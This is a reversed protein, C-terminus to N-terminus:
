QIRRIKYYALMLLKIALISFIGCMICLPLWFMLVNETERMYYVLDINPGQPLYEASDFGARVLNIGGLVLLAAFSATAARNVIPDKYPQVYVHQLLILFSVFVMSILRILSNNIFTYLLVLILRRFMQVGAWCVPGIARTTIDRFPGQLVNIVCETESPINTNEDKRRGREAMWQNMIKLILWHIVFPLPFICSLFFTRLSVKNQELLSPGMLLVFSFPVISCAAYAVVYYQWQSYCEVSGDVFLINTDGIPVCNLLTFSTTALMQYLFLLALMFANSLRTIFSGDVKSSCCCRTIKYVIYMVAFLFVIYPALVAKSILKQWPSLGQLLCVHDILHAIELRFKFLGLLVKKMLARVRPEPTQNAIKVDFLVADQFYYLVIILLIAGIDTLPPPPPQHSPSLPPQDEEAVVEKETSPNTFGESLERPKQEYPNRLVESKKLTTMYMVGEENTSSDDCHSKSLGDMLPKSQGNLIAVSKRKSKCCCFVSLLADNKWKFIFERITKQFLLVLTYLAGTGLFFPWIWMPGCVENPLCVNSFLAETFGEICEGCLTGKRNAACSNPGPCPHAGCCYGKPCQQFKYGNNFPYGWFNPLSRLIDNCDAGYPCDTCTIDNYVYTGHFKFTPSSGNIMLTFYDRVGEDLRYIMSGRDVSYKFRPCSECFYSLQDLMYARKLGRLSIVKYASTNMVRLRHGVPCNIDVDLVQMSWINGSHMLFPNYNNASTINFSVGKLRVNGSSYLIDGQQSALERDMANDFSSNIITMYQKRDVFLSGGLVRASNNRFVSNTITVEGKQARIAGGKGILTISGKCCESYITVEDGQLRFYDGPPKVGSTRFHGAANNTFNCNDILLKKNTLLLIGAGANMAINHVFRSNRVYINTLEGQFTMARENNFFTVNNVDVSVNNPPLPAGWPDLLRVLFTGMYINMVSDIPSYHYQHELVSNKLVVKSTQSRLSLSIIVGASVPRLEEVKSLHLGDITVNCDSRLEVNIFAHLMVSKHVLVRSYNGRIQLTGSASCNGASGCFVHGYWDTDHMEFEADNPHVNMTLLQSNNLKCNSLKISAVGVEVTTNVFHINEVSFVSSPDKSMVSLKRSEPPCRFITIDKNMGILKISGPMKFFGQVNSCLAKPVMSKTQFLIQDGDRVQNVINDLSCWSTSGSSTCNKFEDSTVIWQHDSGEALSAKKMRRRDKGRESDNLKQISLLLEESLLRFGLQNARFLASFQIQSGIVFRPIGFFEAEHPRISSRDM